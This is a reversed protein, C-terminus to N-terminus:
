QQPEASHGLIRKGIKSEAEGALHFSPCAMRSEIWGSDSLSSRDIAAPEHFRNFASLSHGARAARLTEPSLHTCIDPVLSRHQLLYGAPTRTYSSTLWLEGGDALQIVRQAM